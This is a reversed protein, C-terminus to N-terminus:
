CKTEVPLLLLNYKLKFYMLDEPTTPYPIEEFSVQEGDNYFCHSRIQGDVYWEKCEGHVRDNIFFCHRWPRCNKHWTKFEGHKKGDIYFLHQMIQGNDWWRKFEGQYRNRDDVFYHVNKLNFERLM